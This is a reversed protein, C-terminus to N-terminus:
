TSLGKIGNLARVSEIERACLDCRELRELPTMDLASWILTLDVGDENVAQGQRQGDDHAKAGEEAHAAARGAMPNFKRCNQPRRGRENPRIPRLLSVIAAM